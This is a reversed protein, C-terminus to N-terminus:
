RSSRTSVHLKGFAQFGGAATQPRQHLHVSRRPVAQDACHRARELAPLLGNKRRVRTIQLYALRRSESAGQEITQAQVRGSESLQDRRQKCHRIQRIRQRFRVFAGRARVSQANAALGGRQAQNRHDVLRPRVHCRLGCRQAQLSAVDAHQSPATLRYEAILRDHAAQM